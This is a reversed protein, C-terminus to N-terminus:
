GLEQLARYGIVHIGQQQVFTRLEDSLFLARDDVRQPWSATMPHVEPTDRVPHIIFHTIGPALNELVHKIHGMRDHGIELPMGIVEDVLPMGDAESQQLIRVIQAIAEADYGVQQLRVEDWRPIFAVVRYRQALEVYSSLFKPHFVTGMHTDIHTPRVGAALAQEIQAELEQAVAVPNAREQVAASTRHFYGEEDLLGSTAQRTSIPGWRLTDYESTLTLHIGMDLRPHEQHDRCFAAVAPFWGCPVMTAASSLLGFDLLDAYADVSAQCVGIDDAHFIVVRDSNSFGLKKLVPNPQMM